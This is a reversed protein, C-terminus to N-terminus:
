CFKEDIRWFERMLVPRGEHRVHWLESWALSSFSTNQYLELVTQRRGLCKKVNRKRFTQKGYSEAKMSGKGLTDTEDLSKKNFLEEDGLRRKM